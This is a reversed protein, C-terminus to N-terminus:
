RSTVQYDLKFSSIEGMNKSGKTRAKPTATRVLANSRITFILHARAAGESVTFFSVGSRQWTIQPEMQLMKTNKRLHHRLIVSRPSHQANLM